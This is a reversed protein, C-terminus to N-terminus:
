GRPMPGSFRASDGPYCPSCKAIHDYPPDGIPLERRALGTLLKRLRAAKARRARTLPAGSCSTWKTKSASVRPILVGLWRM